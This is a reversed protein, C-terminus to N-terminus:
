AAPKLRNMHDFLTTSAPRDVVAGFRAPATGCEFSRDPLDGRRGFWPTSVMDQGFANIARNRKIIQKANASGNVARKHTVPHTPFVDGPELSGDDLAGSSSPRHHRVPFM